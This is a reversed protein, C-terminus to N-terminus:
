GIARRTAEESAWEAVAQPNVDFFRQAIMLYETRTEYPVESWELGTMKHLRLAAYNFRADKQKSSM